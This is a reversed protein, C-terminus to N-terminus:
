WHGTETRQSPHMKSVARPNTVPLVAPGASKFSAIVSGYSQPASIVYSTGVFESTTELKCCGFGRQQLADPQTFGNTPGSTVVPAGGFGFAAITIDGSSAPCIPSPITTQSVGSNTQSASNTQGANIYPTMAGAIEFCDTSKTSSTASWTVTGSSAPIGDSIGWWIEVQGNAGGIGTFNARAWTTVGMGSVSAITGASTSIACIVVLSGTLPCNPLSFAATTAATTDGTNQHQTISCPPGSIASARISTTLIRWESSTSLTPAITVSAAGAERYGAAVMPNSPSHLDYLEFEGTGPLCTANLLAAVHGVVLEGVASVQTVSPSNSTGLASNNGSTCDVQDAGTVSLAGATIAASTADSVVISNAGSAPAELKWLTTNDNDVPLTGSTELVMSITAYKVGTPQTASPSSVGVILARNYGTCTHTWTLTAAADVSASSSLDPTVAM